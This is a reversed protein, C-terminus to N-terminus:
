NAQTKDAGAKARKELGNDCELAFNDRARTSVLTVRCQLPFLSHGLQAFGHQVREWDINLAM